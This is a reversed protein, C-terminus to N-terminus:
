DNLWRKSTNFYILFNMKFKVDSKISVVNMLAFVYDETSDGHFDAMDKDAVVFLELYKQGVHPLQQSIAKPGPRRNIYPM